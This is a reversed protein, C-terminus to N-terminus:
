HIKRRRTTRVQRGHDSRQLGGVSLGGSCVFVMTCAALPSPPRAGDAATFTCFRRERGSRRPLEAAPVFLNSTETLEAERQERAGQLM